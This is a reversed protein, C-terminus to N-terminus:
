REQYVVQDAMGFGSPRLAVRKGQFDKTLVLMDTDYGARRVRDVFAADARRESLEGYTMVGNLVIRQAWGPLKQYINTPNM